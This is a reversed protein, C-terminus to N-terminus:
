LGSFMRSSGHVESCVPCDLIEGTPGLLNQPLWKTWGLRDSVSTFTVTLNGQLEPRNRGM